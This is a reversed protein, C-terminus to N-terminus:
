KNRTLKVLQKFNAQIWRKNTHESYLLGYIHFMVHTWIADRLQPITRESVLGEYDNDLCAKSVDGKLDPTERTIVPASKGLAMRTFAQITGIDRDKM